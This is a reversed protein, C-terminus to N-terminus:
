QKLFKSSYCDNNLTVKVLYYGPNLDSIDIETIRDRANTNKVLHGALNYIAIPHRDSEFYPLEVNMLTSAPNPYIRINNLEVAPEMIIEADKYAGFAIYGNCHLWESNSGGCKSNQWVGTNTVQNEAQLTSGGVQIYDVQVDRGSGDNIFEVNIGGSNSTTASYNRMGTTLTWTQIANGGATLRIQESGATGRARVTITYNGGSSGCNGAATGEGSPTTGTGTLLIKDLRAGDERYAITLTHNGASLTYSQCDDWTWSSSTTINNWNFWSGNDMRVWYSDDNANPAIVRAWLTYTGSSSVSFPYTIHGTSSSPASGTSNNGSKITVYQDHSANGDAVINWLSGVTGCEAELWIDSGSGGGSVTINFNQTSQAGCTNTYTATATCSSAPTITQQRSTGSTGCGSWSWSGGTTPQPGLVVTSGSSVTVSSTQQFNGGNVQIYPVIATPTCTSGITGVFTNASNSALTNTMSAGGSVAGRNAVNASGTTEYKTFNTAQSGSFNFTVNRSSSSKNIAVIVLTTGSKYATIYLGSAPSYTADVRIYGPRVFKSFHSMIYGRKTINGSEDILGYSRRIYWWIYANYNNNMCNAIEIGVDLADPWQNGSISSNTYHETMWHEKNFNTPNGGYLHDAYIDLQSSSSLTNFWDSKPHVTEPAIINVPIVSANNDLFTKIQTATWGCSEYDPVFDPENQVSIAHLSAGNTSMYNCFDRLHNAYAGYSSTNLSGGTTNGNSKMSAPPSWPTAFVIAGYSKARQATAVEGAWDSSNPPVSIRLISLGIQGNGNGFATAAQASTLDAIWRPFNMGGFGRITQRQTNISITSTQSLGLFTTLWIGIFCLSLKLFLRKM